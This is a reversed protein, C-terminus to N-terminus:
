TYNENIAVRIVDTGSIKMFKIEDDKKLQFYRMFHKWGQGLQCHDLTRPTWILTWIELTQDPLLVVIQQPKDALVYNVVHQPVVMPQTSNAIFQTITTRWLLEENTLDEEEDSDDLDSLIIMKFNNNGLYAFRTLVTEKINYFDKIEHVGNTIRATHEHAEMQCAFRVGEECEIYIHLQLEHRWRRFFRRPITFFDRDGYIVMRFLMYPEM